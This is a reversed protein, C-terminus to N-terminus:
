APYMAVSVCGTKFNKTYGQKEKLYSTVQSETVLPFDDEIWNENPLEPPAPFDACQFPVAELEEELYDTQAIDYM